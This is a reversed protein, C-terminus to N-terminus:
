NFITQFGRDSKVTREPNFTPRKKKPLNVFSSFVVIVKTIDTQGYTRADAKFFEAGAPLIKLFFNIQSNKKKFIKRSLKRKILIQSCYIARWM